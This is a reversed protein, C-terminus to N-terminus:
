DNKAPVTVGDAGIIKAFKNYATAVARAHKTVADCTEDCVVDDSKIHSASDRISGLKGDLEARFKEIADGFLRRFAEKKEDPKLVGFATIAAELREASEDAKVDAKQGVWVVGREGDCETEFKAAAVAFPSLSVLLRQIESATGFSCQTVGDLRLVVEGNEGEEAEAGIEGCLAVLKGVITKTESTAEKLRVEGRVLYSCSM